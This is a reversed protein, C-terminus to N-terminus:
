AELGEVAEVTTTAERLQVLEEATVWSAAPIAIDLSENFLIEIRRYIPRNNKSLAYTGTKPNMLPDLTVKVGDKIYSGAELSDTERICLKFGEEVGLVEDLKAGLEAKELQKIAVEAQPSVTKWAMVFKETDLDPRNFIKIARTTDNAKIDQRMQAVQIKLSGNPLKGAAVIIVKGTALQEAFLEKVDKVKLSEMQTFILSILCYLPNQGM